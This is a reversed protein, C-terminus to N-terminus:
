EELIALRLSVERYAALICHPDGYHSEMLLKVKQYGAESTQPDDIKLEM